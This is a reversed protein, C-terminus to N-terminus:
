MVATCHQLVMRYDHDENPQLQLQERCNTCLFLLLKLVTGVSLIQAFFTYTIRSSGNLNASTWRATRKTTISYQLDESSQREQSITQRDSQIPLSAEIKVPQNKAEIDIMLRVSYGKEPQITAMMYGLSEVKYGMFGVTILAVVAAILLEPKLIRKM